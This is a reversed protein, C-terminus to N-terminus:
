LIVERILVNGKISIYDTLFSLFEKSWGAYPVNVFILYDGVYSSQNPITYVDDDTNEHNPIYDEDSNSNRSINSSPNDTPSEYNLHDVSHWHTNNTDSVSVGHYIDDSNENGMCHGFVTLLDLRTILRCNRLYLYVAYEKDTLLRTTGNETIKPRPLNLSAGYFRDLSNPNSSMIDCDNIFTNTMDDMRDFGGGVILYILWGFSSPPNVPNNEPLYEECIIEGNMSIYPENNVRLKDYM